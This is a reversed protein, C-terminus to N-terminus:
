TLSLFAGVAKYSQRPYGWTGPDSDWITEDNWAVIDTPLVRLARVIPRM